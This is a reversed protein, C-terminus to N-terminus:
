NFLEFWQKKVVEWDFNKVTKRANDSIQFTLKSNNILNKIEIVMEETAADAV